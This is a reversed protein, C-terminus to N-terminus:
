RQRLLSLVDAPGEALCGTPSPEEEGTLEGLVGHGLAGLGDGLVGRVGLREVWGPKGYGIYGGTNKFVM